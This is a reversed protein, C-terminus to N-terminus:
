PSKAQSNDLEPKVDTKRRFFGRMAQTIEREAQLWDFLAPDRQRELYIEFARQRIRQELMPDSLSAM